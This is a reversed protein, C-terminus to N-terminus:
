VDHSPIFNDIQSIGAFRKQYIKKRPKTYTGGNM